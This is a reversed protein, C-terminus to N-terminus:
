PKRARKQEREKALEADIAEKPVRAIRRLASKMKDLNKPKHSGNSADGNSGM